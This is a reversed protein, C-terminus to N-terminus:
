ETNRQFIDPMRAVHISAQCIDLKRIISFDWNIYQYKLKWNVKCSSIKIKINLQVEIISATCSYIKLFDCNKFDIDPTEHYELNKIIYM